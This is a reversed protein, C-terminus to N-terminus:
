NEYKKCHEGVTYHGIKVFNLNKVKLSVYFPNYMHCACDTKQEEYCLDMGNM